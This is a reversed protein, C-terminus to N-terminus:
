KVERRNESMLQPTKSIFADLLEPKKRISEMFSNINYIMTELAIKSQSVFKYREPTYDVIVDRNLRGDSHYEVSTEFKMRTLEYLNNGVMWFVDFDFMLATGNAFSIDEINLICKGGSNCREDWDEADWKKPREYISVNANFRIMIVKKKKTKEIFNKYFSIMKEWDNILQEYNINWLIYDGLEKWEGPTRGNYERSRGVGRLNDINGVVVEGIHTPVVCSFENRKKNFNVVRQFPKTRLNKTPVNIEETSIQSM